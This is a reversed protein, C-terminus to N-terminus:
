FYVMKKKNLFAPPLSPGVKRKKKISWLPIIKGMEHAKNSNNVNKHMKNAIGGIDINVYRICKIVNRKGFKSWLDSIKVSLDSGRGGMTHVSIRGKAKKNAARGCLGCFSLHGGRNTLLKTTKYKRKKM